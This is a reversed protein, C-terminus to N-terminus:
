SRVSFNQFEILKRWQNLYGSCFPLVSLLYIKLLSNAESHIDRLEFVPGVKLLVEMQAKM